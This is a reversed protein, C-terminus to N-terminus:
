GRDSAKTRRTTTARKPTAHALTAGAPSELSFDTLVQGDSAHYSIRDMSGGIAALRKGLGLRNLVKVGNSWLSVGAGAGAFGVCRGRVPPM